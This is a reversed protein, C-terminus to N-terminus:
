FKDLGTIEIVSLVDMQGGIEHHEQIILADNLGTMEIVSLVDMQGGIFYANSGAKLIKQIAFVIVRIGASAIYDLNKAFFIIKTIEKGRYEQLQDSFASANGADLRGILTIELTNANNVVTFKGEM